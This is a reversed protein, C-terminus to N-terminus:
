GQPPGNEVQYNKGKIHKGARGSVGFFPLKIHHFKAKVESFTSDHKPRFTKEDAYPYGGFRNGSSFLMNPNQKVLLPQHVISVQPPDGKKGYHIRLYGIGQHIEDYLFPVQFGVIKKSQPSDFLPTTKFGLEKLTPSVAGIYGKVRLIPFTTNKEKHVAIDGYANGYVEHPNKFGKERYHRQQLPTPHNTQTKYAKTEDLQVYPPTKIRKLQMPFYGGWEGSPTEISKDGIQSMIDAVVKKFERNNYPIKSKPTFSKAKIFPANYPAFNLKRYKRQWEIYTLKKKDAEKWLQIADKSVVNPIEWMAKQVDSCSGKDQQLLDAIQKKIEEIKQLRQKILAQESKKDEAQLAFSLLALVLIKNVM